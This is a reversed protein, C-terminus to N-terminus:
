QQNSQMQCIGTILALTVIALAIDLLNSIQSLMNLNMLEPLERADASLRFISQNLINSALWLTWWAPLIVSAKGTSWQEPNSSALWIEKMAQYPKWLNFMPIFYYAISWAPTYSLNEAGLQRLNSNARYIWKLILVASAIFAILSAIGTSQLLQISLEGHDFAAQLSAYFGSQYDALLQYELFNFIISLIAILIQAYLVYRIWKTLKTLNKFAEASSSM